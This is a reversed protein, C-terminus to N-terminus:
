DILEIFTLLKLNIDSLQKELNNIEHLENDVEQQGAKHTKLATQVQEEVTDIQVKLGRELRASLEALEADFQKAIKEGQQLSLERLKQKYTKGVEEKVRQIINLATVGGRFVAVVIAVPLLPLGFTSAAMLALLHPLILKTVEQWGFIAGVGAGGVGALFFGGAAALTRELANSPGEKAVELESSPIQAGLLKIRTLKLDAEFNETLRELDRRLSKFREEIFKMLIDERWTTFENELKKNLFDALGQVADQVQGRINLSWKLEISYEAVLDNVKNEFGIFFDRNKGIILERMDRRYGDVRRIINEQDGRLQDFRTRASEYSQELETLPKQLYVRKDLIFKPTQIIIFQLDKAARKIKIRSRENALFNHLVEELALINSRQVLEENQNLRGDLANLSSIFYIDAFPKTTYSSFQEKARQMVAERDKEKRLLDYQNVVFFIDEHGLTRLTELTEKEHISPGLRLATMVFLIADVNHLYNITVEERVESENLGPSDIIEVNNRCLEIPWFLEIHSYPSQRIEQEADDDKIVVYNELEDIPIELPQKNTENFHLVARPEQNWKIENTIATTPTASSPLIEEGLLANIFTSKGTNFEGIVLIKFTDRLVTEKLQQAKTLENSIGLRFLINIVQQVLEALEERRQRDKAYNDEYM